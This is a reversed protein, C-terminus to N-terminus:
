SLHWETGETLIRQSIKKVPIYFLVNMLHCFVESFRFKTNFATKKLTSWSDDSSDTQILYLPQGM